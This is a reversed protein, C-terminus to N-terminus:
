VPHCAAVLFGWWSPMLLRTRVALAVAQNRAPGDGLPLVELEPSHGVHIM